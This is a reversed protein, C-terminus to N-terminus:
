CFVCFVSVHFCQRIYTGRWNWLVPKKLIEPGEIRMGKNLLPKLIEQKREDKTHVQETMVQSEYTLSLKSDNHLCLVPLMKNLCFSNAFTFGNLCNWLLLRWTNRMSLSFCFNNQSSINHEAKEEGVKGSHGNILGKLIPLFWQTYTLFRRSESFSLCTWLFITFKLADRHNCSSM